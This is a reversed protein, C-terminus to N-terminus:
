LARARLISAIRTLTSKADAAGAPGIKAIADAAAKDGAPALRLIAHAIAERVAPDKAKDLRSVLEQRTADNGYVAAMTAAKIAVRNAPAADLAGAYCQANTACKQALAAAATLTEKDEPKGYKAVAASVAPVQAPAMLTIAGDLAPATVADKEAGSAAAVVKLLWDTLHTDYLRPAELLLAVHPNGGGDPLSGNAPTRAYASLFAPVTRPSPPFRDLTQAVAVRNADNDSVNLAAIAADGAIPRGVWGLPDALIRIYARQELPFELTALEADTGTIAGALPPEAAKPMSLLTDAAEAALAKKGPTLLIGVLARAGPAFALAQVLRICTPEWLELLDKNQDPNAPDLQSSLMPLCGLAYKPDKVAAIADGLEKVVAPSEAKSARFKSFCTWLGDVLTPGAPKNAAVRESVGKAALRVDEDTKGGSTPQYENLAKALAPTGRPDLTDALVRLAQKRVPADLTATVYQKTLPDVMADVVAKVEADERNNQAKTMAGDFMQGLHHVADARQAPVDLRRAWTAPDTEDTCGAACLACAALPAVAPPVALALRIALRVTRPTKM